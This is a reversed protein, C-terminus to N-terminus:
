GNTGTPAVGKTASSAGQTAFYVGVVVAAIIGALLITGLIAGIIAGICGPGCSASQASPTSKLVPSSPLFTEFVMIHSFLYM